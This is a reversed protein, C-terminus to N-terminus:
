IQGDSPAVQIVQMAVNGQIAIRCNYLNVTRQGLQQGPEGEVHDQVVPLISNTGEDAVTEVVGKFGRKAVGIDKKPVQLGDWTHKCQFDVFFLHM